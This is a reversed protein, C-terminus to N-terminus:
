AELTKPVALWQTHNTAWNTWHGIEELQDTREAKPFIGQFQADPAM